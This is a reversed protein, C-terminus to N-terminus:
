DATLRFTKQLSAKFHLQFAMRNILDEVKLSAPNEGGLDIQLAIMPVTFSGISSSGEMVEFVFGVGRSEMRVIYRGAKVGHEALIRDFLDQATRVRQSEEVSGKLLEEVRKVEKPDKQPEPEIKWNGCRVGKCDRALALKPFAAVIAAGATTKLFARRNPNHESM